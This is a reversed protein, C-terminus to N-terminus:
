FPLEDFSRVVARGCADAAPNGPRVSLVTQMGAAEAADLEKLADSVFLIAEPTLRLSEAIHRYSDPDSKVGASTDFFGDLHLTLDGYSSHGFLLRQALVSGSSYICVQKGQARWRALASPVDEFVEGHLQGTAYGDEWIEGQLSKLPGLKSDRSVLWQFYRVSSELEAAESTDDWTPCGDQSQRDIEWQSRLGALDTRVAPVRFHARLYAEVNKVAYPFLVDYVFTIPTTTGEIDLLVARVRTTDLM